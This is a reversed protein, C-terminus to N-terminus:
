PPILIWPTRTARYPKRHVGAGNKPSDNLREADKAYAASIQRMRERREIEESTMGDIPARPRGTPKRQTPDADRLAKRKESARRQAEQYEPTLRRIAAAENKLKKRRSDIAADYEAAIRASREAPTERRKMCPVSTSAKAEAEAAIWELESPDLANLEERMRAWYEPPIIEIVAMTDPTLLYRLVM